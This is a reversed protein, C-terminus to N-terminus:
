LSSLRISHQHSILHNMLEQMADQLWTTLTTDPLLFVTEM